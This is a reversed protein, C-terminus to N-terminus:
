SAHNQLLCFIFLFKEQYRVKLQWTLVAMKHVFIEHDHQHRHGHFILKKKLACLEACPVRFNVECTALGTIYDTLLQM